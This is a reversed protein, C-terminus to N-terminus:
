YVDSPTPWSVTHSVLGKKFHKNDVQWVEKIGLGYHQNSISDKALSYKAKVKETLSGRAGETFVTQKAKIMIGPEFNDTMEGSKGIGLDGTVVGGISGDDNEILSSGAVGPLVDVELEEAREGLWMCLESLSIIYNGHNHIESPLLANPVSFHSKESLITFKDEM